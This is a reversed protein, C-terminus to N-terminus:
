HTGGVSLIQYGARELCDIVHQGEWAECLSTGSAGDVVWKIVVIEEPTKVWRVDLLTKKMVM